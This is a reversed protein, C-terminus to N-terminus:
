HDIVSEVEPDLKKPEDYTAQITVEEGTVVASGSLDVRRRIPQGHLAPNDDVSVPFPPLGISSGAIAWDKEPSPLLIQFSDNGYRLNFMMFPLKLFDNKRRLVLLSITNGATPGPVFTWLVSQAMSIENRHDADKIWAFATRFDAVNADPILSLGMKVLAKLVAIPVYSDRNIRFTLTKAAEDVDMVANEAGHMMEIGTDRPEIRWGGDPGQKITPIGSKGKTRAFLRSPKSWYGFQNEIGRGFADNCDDCEHASLLTRNGLMEPIAHAQKKFTVQPASLGCFRCRRSKTDGVVITPEGHKLVWQGVIDYNDAYFDLARESSYEEIM